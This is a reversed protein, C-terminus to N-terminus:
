QQHLLRFVAALFFANQAGRILTVNAAMAEVSIAIKKELLDPLDQHFIAYAQFTASWYLLTGEAFSCITGVDSTVTEVTSGTFM